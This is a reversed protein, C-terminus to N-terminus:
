KGGSASLSLEFVSGSQSFRVRDQLIETIKAGSITAGEQVLFGNVVARRARHEDQWAIGSLKIDAPPAMTPASAKPSKMRKNLEQVTIRSAADETSQTVQKAPATPAV